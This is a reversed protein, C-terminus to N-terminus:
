VGSTESAERECVKIKNLFDAKSRSRNAERYNAGISTGSKTIQNKIVRGEETKPLLISSKIISLAFEKTRKELVKSFEKNDM